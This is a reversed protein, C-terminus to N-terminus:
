YFTWSSILVYASVYIDAGFDLHIYISDGRVIVVINIGKKRSEIMKYVAKLDGWLRHVM